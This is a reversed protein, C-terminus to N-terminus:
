ESAESQGSQTEPVDATGVMRDATGHTGVGTKADARGAIARTARDTFSRGIQDGPAEIPRHPLDVSAGIFVCRLGFQRLGVKLLRKIRYDLPAGIGVPVFHCCIPRENQM